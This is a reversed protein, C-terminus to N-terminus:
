RSPATSDLATPDGLRDALRSLAPLAAELRVREDETLGTLATAFRVQHAREWGLLHALGAETLQVVAVRRDTPDATRVVLGAETSTQVLGSMTSPALRLRAALAGIRAPQDDRLALLLEVQAMPLSEWPYDSRISTRLARRLRTVVETLDTATASAGPEPPPGPDTSM